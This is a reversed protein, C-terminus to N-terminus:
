ERDNLVWWNFWSPRVIPCSFACLIAHTSIPTKWQTRDRYTRAWCYLWIERIRSSPDMMHLNTLEQINIRKHTHFNPNWYWEFGPWLFIWGIRAQPFSQRQIHTNGFINWPKSLSMELGELLMHVTYGVGLMRCFYKCAHVSFSHESHFNQEEENPLIPKKPASANHQITDRTLSTQNSFFHQKKAGTCSSATSVCSALSPQGNNIQSDTIVVQAM